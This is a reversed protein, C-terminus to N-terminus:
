IFFAYVLESLEIRHLAPPSFKAFHLKAKDDTELGIIIGIGSTELYM